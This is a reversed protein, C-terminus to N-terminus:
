GAPLEQQETLAVGFEVVVRNRVFEPVAFEGRGVDFRRCDVGADGSMIFQGRAALLWLLLM